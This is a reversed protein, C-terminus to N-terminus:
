QKDGKKTIEYTAIRVWFQKECPECIFDVAWTEGPSVVATRDIEASVAPEGCHPCNVILDM